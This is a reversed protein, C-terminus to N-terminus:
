KTKKKKSDEEDLTSGHMEEDLEEVQSEDGTAAGAQASLLSAEPSPLTAATALNLFRFQM